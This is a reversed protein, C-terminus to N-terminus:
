WLPHDCREFGTLSRASITAPLLGGRKDDLLETRGRSGSFADVAHAIKAHIVVRFRDDFQAAQDSEPSLPLSFTLSSPVGSPGANPLSAWYDGEATL